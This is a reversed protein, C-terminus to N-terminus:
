LVFYSGRRPAAWGHVNTPCKRADHAIRYRYTSLRKVGACTYGRRAYSTWPECFIAGLAAGRGCTSGLMLCLAPATKSWAFGGAISPATEPTGAVAAAGVKVAGTSELLFGTLFPVYAIDLALNLPRGYVARVLLDAGAVLTAALLLLALAGYM